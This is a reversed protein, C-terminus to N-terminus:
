WANKEWFGGCWDIVLYYFVVMAFFFDVADTLM